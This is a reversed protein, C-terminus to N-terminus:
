HLVTPICLDPMRPLEDECVKESVFLCKISGKEDEGAECNCFFDGKNVESGDNV